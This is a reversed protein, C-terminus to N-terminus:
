NTSGAPPLAQMPSTGLGGSMSGGSVAGGQIVEGGYYIDGGLASGYSGSSMSLGDDYSGYGASQGCNHCGADYAAPLTPANVGCVGSQCPAGRFMPLWGRGCGSALTFVLGLLLLKRMM